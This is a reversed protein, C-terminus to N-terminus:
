GDRGERELVMQVLQVMTVPGGGTNIEPAKPLGHEVIREAHRLLLDSARIRTKLSKAHKTAWALLEVADAFHAGDEKLIAEALRVQVRETLERARKSWASDGAPVPLAGTGEAPEISDPM